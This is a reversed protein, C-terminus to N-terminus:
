SNRKLSPKGRPQWNNPRQSPAKAHCASTGSTRDRAAILQLPSQRQMRRNGIGVYAMNALKNQSCVRTIRDLEAGQRDTLAAQLLGATEEAQSGRSHQQVHQVFALLQHLSVGHMASKSGERRQVPQKHQAPQDSTSCMSEAARVHLSSSLGPTATSGTPTQSHVTHAAGISSPEEGILQQWLDLGECLLTDYSDAQNAAAQNPQVHLSGAVKKFVPSPSRSMCKSQTQTLLQWLSDVITGEQRSHHASPTSPLAATMRCVSSSSFAPPKSALLGLSHLAAQLQARTLLGANCLLADM